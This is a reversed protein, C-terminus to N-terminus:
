YISYFDNINTEIATRNSSQTTSYLIIEQLSCNLSNTLDARIGIFVGNTSGLSFADANTTTVLVSDQFLTNQDIGSFLTQQNLNISYLPGNFSLDNTNRRYRGNSMMLINNGNYRANILRGTNSLKTTAVIFENDFNIQNAKLYDGVGDFELSPKGNELIVSGSSVIQPQNAATTQAADYGNGSQDYWTTVFGDTGSCFTTLSATDLENNVFAIELEDNDSARRVRIVDGTYSGRLQRLSYAAAAGSYEDLLGVFGGSAFRQRGVGVGIGVFPM